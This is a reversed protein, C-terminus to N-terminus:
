SNVRATRSVKCVLRMLKRHVSPFLTFIIDVTRRMPMPCIIPKNKHIGTLTIKALQQPTIMKQKKLQKTIVSKDINVAKATNFIPTDVFTPCLTSVKIGYEEAEYHLSTTLGVVAHKTTSYPSSIPSPGLGAASATNVIHGFSQEKMLNYGVQTGYIVGWLNIDMIEKWDEISMDYLEGYMAIGANNFLYDLRGFEKYIDTITREVSEFHTVDLCVYRSNIGNENLEAEVIQGELKNIDAIIVFVNQSVLESCLARGIGSAGGTVISVKRGEGM